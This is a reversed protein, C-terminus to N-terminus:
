PVTIRFTLDKTSFDKASLIFLYPQSRFEITSALCFGSNLSIGSGGIHACTKKVQPLTKRAHALMKWVQTGM